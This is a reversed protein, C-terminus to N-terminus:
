LKRMGVTSPLTGQVRQPYLERIHCLQGCFDWCVNCIQLLMSYPM